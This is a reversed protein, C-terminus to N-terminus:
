HLWMSYNITNKHGFCNARFFVIGRGTILNISLYRRNAALKIEFLKTWLNLAPPCEPCNCYARCYLIDNEPMKWQKSSCITRTRSPNYPSGRDSSVVSVAFTLLIPPKGTRISHNPARECCLWDSPGHHHYQTDDNDPRIYVAYNYVVCNNM